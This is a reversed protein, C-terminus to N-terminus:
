LLLERGLVIARASSAHGIDGTKAVPLEQMMKSEGNHLLELLMDEVTPKRREQEMKTFTGLLIGSVQEFVGLHNLQGLYTAYQPVDGGMGELLLIKKNLDPFYPTGALKLFCRINGGVVIGKMSAGQLFSYNFNFLEKNQGCYAAFNKKQVGSEDWILNKLQYLVGINGTKTYIANLVTTLDSYGWFPKPNDAIVEYDLYPLIMNAIDGGSIDFIATIEDDRYFSMLAEARERVTGPFVSSETYMVPSLVPKLGLEYLTDSLKEIIIRQSNDQGNSCCVIAAKDGKKLMGLFDDGM